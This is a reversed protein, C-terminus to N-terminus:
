FVCGIAVFNSLFLGFMMNQTMKPSKPLFCKKKQNESSNKGKKVLHSPPFHGGFNLSKPPKDGV